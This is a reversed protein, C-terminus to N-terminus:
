GEQKKIGLEASLTDLKTKDQLVQELLNELEDSLDAKSALDRLRSRTELLAKLAPVQEAVKAPDFDDMSKFKLNVAM